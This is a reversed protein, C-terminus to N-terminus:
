TYSLMRARTRNQKQFADACRNKRQSTTRYARAHERQAHAQGRPAGPRGRRRSRSERLVRLCRRLTSLHRTASLFCVFWCVFLCVCVVRKYTYIQDKVTTLSAELQRLTEETETLDNSMKVTLANPSKVNAIQFCLKFSKGGHDGGIKLVLKNEKIASSHQLFPGVRKHAELFCTVLSVLDPIVLMPTLVVQGHKDVMSWLCVRMHSTSPYSM